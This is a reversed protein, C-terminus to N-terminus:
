QQTHGLDRHFAGGLTSVESKAQLREPAHHVVDCRNLLQLLPRSIVEHPLTDDRRPLPVGTPAVPGHHAGLVSCHPSLMGVHSDCAYVIDCSWHTVHGAQSARCRSTHISIRRAATPSCSESATSLPVGPCHDPQALTHTVM